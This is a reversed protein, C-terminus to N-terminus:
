SEYTGRDKKSLENAWKKPDLDKSQAPLFQISFIFIITFLAKTKLTPTISTEARFTFCKV